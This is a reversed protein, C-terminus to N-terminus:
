CLELYLESTPDLDKSWSVQLTLITVIKLEKTLSPAPISDQTFRTGLFTNYFRQKPILSGVAELIAFTFEVLCLGKIFYAEDDESQSSESCLCWKLFWPDAIM